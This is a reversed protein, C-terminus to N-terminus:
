CGVPSVTFGSLLIIMCAKGENYVNYVFLGM